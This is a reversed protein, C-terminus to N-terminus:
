WLQSCPSLLSVILWTPESKRAESEWIEVNDALSVMSDAVELSVGPIQIKEKYWHSVSGRNGERGFCCHSNLEM